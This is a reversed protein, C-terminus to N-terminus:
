RVLTIKEVDAAYDLRVSLFYVGAPLAVGKADRGDWAVNFRENELARFTGLNRVLRGQVDFVAIRVDRWLPTFPNQLDGPPGTRLAGGSGSGLPPPNILTGGRPGPPVSVTFLCGGPSPNPAVSVNSGPAPLPLVATAAATGLVKTAKGPIEVQLQYRYAHGALVDPDVYHHRDNKGGLSAATGVLVLDPSDDLSRLIRYTGGFDVGDVQWVLVFGRPATQVALDGYLKVDHVFFSIEAPARDFRGVSNVGRARLRHTGGGLEPLRLTFGERRSTFLGDAAAAAHWPSGDVAYEVAGVINITQPNTYRPPAPYPVDWAEGEVPLNLSTELTDAFVTDIRTDPYTSQVDPLGDHDTDWLGVQGQTFTCPNIATEMQQAEDASYESGGRMVCRGVQLNCSVCNNNPVDLYGAVAGCGGCATSYEDLAQYIHGMEHAIVRALQLPGLAGNGRTCVLHPGGLYAYALPSGGQFGNANLVFISFSWNGEYRARVAENLADLGVYGCPDPYGLYAVCDEIYDLETDARPNIGPESSTYALGQDVVIFSGRHSSKLSWWNCARVVSAFTADLDQQMWNADSGESEPYIVSVVSRGEVFGTRGYAAPACRLGPRGREALVEDLSRSGACIPADIRVGRLDPPIFPTAFGDNWWQALGRSRADAARLLAPAPGRLVETVATERALAAALGPADVLVLGAGAVAVPVQLGAAELRDLLGVLAPGDLGPTLALACPASLEHYPRLDAAVGSRPLALLLTLLPVFPTAVWVWGRTPRSM